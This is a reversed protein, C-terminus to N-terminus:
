KTSEGLEPGEAPAGLMSTSLAFRVRIRISHSLEAHCIGKQCARM